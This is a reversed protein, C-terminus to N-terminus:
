HYLGFDKLAVAQCMARAMGQALPQLYMSDVEHQSENGSSLKANKTGSIKRNQSTGKSDKQCLEFFIQHRFSPLGLGGGGCGGGRLPSPGM